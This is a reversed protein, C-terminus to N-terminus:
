QVESVASKGVMLVAKGNECRIGSPAPVVACDSIIGYKQNFASQMQTVNKIKPLIENEIKIPYAIYSSPGGCPKSGIPSIRWESADTCTEKAIEAEIEQIMVSLKKYDEQQVYNNDPKLAIDKPLTETDINKKSKCSNLSLVSIAIVLFYKMKQTKFQADFISGKGRFVLKQTNEVHNADFM